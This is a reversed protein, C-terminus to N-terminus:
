MRSDDFLNIFNILHVQEIVGYAIVTVLPPNTGNAADTAWSVFPDVSGNGEVYWYVTQIGPAVGTIFQTDLNGEICVKGECSDTSFGNPAQVSETPLSNNALFYALDTTSFYNSDTAFVAQSMSSNGQLGSMGYLENLFAVTVVGSAASTHQGRLNSGSQTHSVRDVPGDSKSRRLVPPVQVTNFVSSLHESVHEPLSYEVARHMTSEDFSLWQQYLPSGPTSREVLIDDLKELNQQEVAFILEHSAEADASQHLRVFDHRHITKGRPKFTGRGASVIVLSGYLLFNLLSLM